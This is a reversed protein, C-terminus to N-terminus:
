GRSNKRRYVEGVAELESYAGITESKERTDLRKGHTHELLENSYNKNEQTRSATVGNNIQQNGNTINAQKAYVDSPNKIDSLTQLTSRCQSQAKYALRLFSEHHPMHTQGLGKMVLSNFLADLTHAQALLMAEPRTMNGAVVDATQQILIKTLANVDHIDNLVRITGAAGVEPTTLIKAVAEDLDEDKGANVIVSSKNKVPLKKKVTM